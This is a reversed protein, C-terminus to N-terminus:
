PAIANVRIGKAGVEKAATKTIGIVGHKSAVYPALGPRGMLGAMSAANVISGGKGMVKIEARMCFMVGSLNVGLVKNWVADDTDEVNTFTMEIGAINAAGDLKGFHTASANIWETVASASSVDVKTSVIDVGQSKLESALKSLPGDQIDSIALKAGRSALLKTLALGIGSAAGTVAIVKGEFSM